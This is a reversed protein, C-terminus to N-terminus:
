AVFGGLDDARDNDGSDGQHEAIANEAPHYKAPLGNLAPLSGGSMVRDWLEHLFGYGDV